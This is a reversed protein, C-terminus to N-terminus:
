DLPNKLDGIAPDPNDCAPCRMTEAINENM